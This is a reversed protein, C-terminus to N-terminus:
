CNENVKRRVRVRRPKKESTKCVGVRLKTCLMWYGNLQYVMGSCELYLLTDIADECSCRVLAAIDRAPMKHVSELVCLITSPLDVRGARLVAADGSTFLVTGVGPKLAPHM